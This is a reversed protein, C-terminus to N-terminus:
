NKHHFIVIPYPLETTERNKGIISIHYMYVYYVYTHIYMQSEGKNPVRKQALPLEFERLTVNFRFDETLPLTSHRDMGDFLIMDCDSLTVTEPGIIFSAPHGMSISLITKNGLGPEDDKHPRVHGGREYFVITAGNFSPLSIKVNEPLSETALRIVQELASKQEKSGSAVLSINGWSYRLETLGTLM